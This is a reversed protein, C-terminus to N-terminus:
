EPRSLLFLGFIRGEVRNGRHNDEKKIFGFKLLYGINVTM